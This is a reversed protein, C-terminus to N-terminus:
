PRRTPRRDEQDPADLANFRAAETPTLNRNMRAAADIVADLAKLQMKRDSKLSDLEETNM